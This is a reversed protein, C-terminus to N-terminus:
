PSRRVKRLRERNEAEETAKLLYDHFIETAVIGDARNYHEAMVDDSIDIVARALGPQSRNVLPATSGIAHRFRHPRIPKGLLARSRTVVIKRVGEEGLPKGLRGIWFAGSDRGRVLRPRIKQLYTNMYATMRMPMLIRDARGLYGTKLQEPWYTIRYRDDTREVNAATMTQVVTGLRRGRSALTAFLLGDRFQLAQRIDTDIRSLDATDMLRFAEAYLIRVDPVDIERKTLTLRCRVSAGYPQLVCSRDAHPAM